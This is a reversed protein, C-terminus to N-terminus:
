MDHQMYSLLREALRPVQSHGRSPYHDEMNRKEEGDGKISITMSKNELYCTGGLRNIMNDQTRLLHIYMNIVEDFLYTNRCFLCEM